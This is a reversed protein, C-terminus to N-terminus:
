SARRHGRQADRHPFVSPARWPHCGTISASSTLPVGQTRRALDARLRANAESIAQLQYARENTATVNWSADQGKFDYVWLAALPVLAEEITSLLSRFEKESKEAPGPAGFEGVFLPKRARAAAAAAEHIERTCDGYAHV